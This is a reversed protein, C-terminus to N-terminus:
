YASRHSLQHLHRIRVGLHGLCNTIFKELLHLHLLAFPHARPHPCVRVSRKDCRVGRLTTVCIQLSPIVSMKGKGCIQKSQEAFFGTHDETVNPVRMHRSHEPIWRRRPTCTDKQREVVISLHVYRCSYRHATPPFARARSCQFRWPMPAHGLACVHQGGGWACGGPQLM